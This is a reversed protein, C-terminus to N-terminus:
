PAPEHRHSGQQCRGVGREAVDPADLGGRDKTPARASHHPRFVRGKTRGPSRARRFSNSSSRGNTRESDERLPPRAHGSHTVHCCSASSGAPSSMNGATFGRAHPGAADCSNGREQQSDQSGAGKRQLSTVLPAAAVTSLSDERAAPHVSHTNHRRGGRSPEGSCRDRRSESTRGRIARGPLRAWGTSAWRFAPEVARVLSRGLEGDCRPLPRRV